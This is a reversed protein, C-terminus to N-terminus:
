KYATIIKVPVGLASMQSISLDVFGAEEIEEKVFIPRCDVYNPFNDHAWEYFKGMVSTKDEKSMAVVCIRGGKKLVRLCQKLVLPIEPTDFLELAFSIFVANFFDSEFPLEAADGRELHVRNSLGAKKLKLGTTKVMEDSIDIGYVAGSDEVSQALNETCYGTGFGIELIKEGKKVNVKLLGADRFKKESRSILADYWKSGKNYAARAEEKSRKIRLIKKASDM